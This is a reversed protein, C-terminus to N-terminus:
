SARRSRAAFAGRSRGRRPATDRRGRAGPVPARLHRAHGPDVLVSGASSRSTTRANPSSCRSAPTTSDSRPATSTKRSTRKRPGSESGSMRTGECGARWL